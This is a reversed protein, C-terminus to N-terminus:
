AEGDKLAVTDGGEVVANGIFFNDTVGNTSNVKGQVSEYGNTVGAVVGDTGGLGMQPQTTPKDKLNIDFLGKFGTDTRFQKFQELTMSISGSGSKDILSIQADTSGDVALKAYNGSNLTFDDNVVKDASLILKGANTISAGSKGLRLTTVGKADVTAGDIALKGDASTTSPIVARLLQM